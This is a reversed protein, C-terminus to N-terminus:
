RDPSKIFDACREAIMITAANTNSSILSPMVSADCIRLGDIGKFRLQLDVVAAEDSGMRCTGVPHHDTKATRCAYDILAADTGVGCGPLVERAVYPALAPQGMIARAMRLGRLANDRDRPDSWYNPDILPPAGPDPASLRVTGRSFPRTVASNLTVGANRLKEVGAEIGSGLGLHFQIGPETDGEALPAFGGTEFLSSAAPGTRTLLYRLGALAARFPSAYTDYTHPGTCEWITFLDLHDQLNAGVSGNDHVVEIGLEAL